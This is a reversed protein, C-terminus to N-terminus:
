IVSFTDGSAPATTITSVTFTPPNVSNNATINTAQGRLETTTTDADFVITRGKFQDAAIATPAFASTVVSTTSGGTTCTGRGVIAATKALNISTTFVLVGVVSINSTTSKGSFLLADANCETATVDFLYWGKANTNDMETASTDTLQTVSGWDKSVYATINAADGTKPLGTAADFAFMAIKQSATNKYM